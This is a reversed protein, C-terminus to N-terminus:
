LTEEDRAAAYNAAFEPDTALQALAEHLKIGQEKALKQARANLDGALGVTTDTGLTVDEAGAVPSGGLAIVSANAEIADMAPGFADPNSKALEIM